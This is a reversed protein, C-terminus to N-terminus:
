NVSKSEEKSNTKLRLQNLDFSLNSKQLNRLYNDSIESEENQNPKQMNNIINHLREEKFQNYVFEVEDINLNSPKVKSVATLTIIFQTGKDKGESEVKVNGGM